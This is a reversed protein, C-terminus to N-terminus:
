DSLTSANVVDQWCFGGYVGKGWAKWGILPLNGVKGWWYDLVIKLSPLM